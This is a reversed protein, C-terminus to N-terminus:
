LFRVLLNVIVALILNLIWCYIYLLKISFGQNIYFTYYRKSIAHTFILAGLSSLILFRITISLILNNPNSSISLIATLILSTILFIRYFLSCTRIKSKINTFM